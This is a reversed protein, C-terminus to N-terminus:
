ARTRRGSLVCGVFRTRFLQSGARVRGVAPLTRGPPLKYKRAGATGNLRWTVWRIAGAPRDDGISAFDDCAAGSPRSGCM